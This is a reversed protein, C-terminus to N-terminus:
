AEGQAKEKKMKFADIQKSFGNVLNRFDKLALFAKAQEVSYEVPKGDWSLKEWGLLITHSMVEIMIEDSKADAIDGGLELIPLAEDYLKSFLKSYAANGARGVLIRSGKALPFWAGNNELAPDTEYAERIDFM